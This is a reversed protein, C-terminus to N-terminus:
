PESRSRSAIVHPNQRPPIGDTSVGPAGAIREPVTKELEFQDVFQPSFLSHEGGRHLAGRESLKQVRSKAGNKSMDHNAGLIAEVIATPHVRSFTFGHVLPSQRPASAV